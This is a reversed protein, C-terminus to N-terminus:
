TGKEAKGKSNLRKAIRNEAEEERGQGEKVGVAATVGWQVPISAHRRASPMHSCKRYIMNAQIVKQECTAM